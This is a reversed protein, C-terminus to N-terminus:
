GWKGKSLSSSGSYSNSLQSEDWTWYYELAYDSAGTKYDESLRLQIKIVSTGNSCM